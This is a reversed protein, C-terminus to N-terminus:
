LLPSGLSPLRGDLLASAFVKGLLCGLGAGGGFGAGGFGAELGSGLAAGCGTSTLAATSFGLASGLCFTTIEPGPPSLTESSSSSSTLCM